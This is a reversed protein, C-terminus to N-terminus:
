APPRQSNTFNFYRSAEENLFIKKYEFNTFIPLDLDELFDDRPWRDSQLDPPASGMYFSIVDVGALEALELAKDIHEKRDNWSFVVYKWDIYPLKKERQNRYSVLDLMNKYTKDFDAGVQYSGLTKNDIGDLSFSVHDMLMAGDRKYDSDVLSGNTSTFIVVNPNYKRIIRLEDTIMKSFFPEGLNLYYVREMNNVQLERAIIELDELSLSRQARNNYIIERSCYTCKYNCNVTNEIMIGSSPVKVTRRKEKAVKKYVVRHDACDICRNIPLRGKSLMRRFSRAKKDSIIEHLTKQRLDGLKGTGDVDNCNCSVSMDCNVVLNYDSEGALVRCYFRKGARCTEKEYARIRKKKAKQPTMQFYERITKILKRVLTRLNLFDLGKVLNRFKQNFWIKKMMDIM